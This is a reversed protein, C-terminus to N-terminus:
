YHALGLDVINSQVLVREGLGKHKLLLLDRHTYRDLDLGETLVLGPVM